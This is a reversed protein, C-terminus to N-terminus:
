RSTDDRLWTDYDGSRIRRSSRLRAVVTVALFVPLRTAVVRDARALRLLGRVTTRAETGTLEHNQAQATGTAVRVRRNVLAKLNRAPHVVVQAGEVIRREDQTFAESMVLDDSMMPPLAAIRAHGHASVAVVGRGFLGARVQPLREWVDYYFGAVRRVGQRSLVRRPACALVEGTGLAAVLRRVSEVDLEVDADVYLRPFATAAENGRRLAEHKSPQAIEEVRIDPGFTRAIEATRDTCGNCVVVIELEGRGAGDTLCHLLRAIGAEEDHAPVVVSATALPISSGKM